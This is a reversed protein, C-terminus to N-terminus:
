WQLEWLREQQWQEHRGMCGAHDCCSSWLAQQKAESSPNYAHAVMGPEPIYKRTQSKSPLSLCSFAQVPFRFHLSRSRTVCELRAICRSETGGHGALKQMKLLSLSEGHQGRHERDRSRMIWGGRGGLTSPNCAQAVTGLKLFAMKVGKKSGGLLDSEEKTDEFGKTGEKILANIKQYKM